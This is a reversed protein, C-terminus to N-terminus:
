GGPMPANRDQINAGAGQASSKLSDLGGAANTIDSPSTSGSKLSSGLGKIQSYVLAPADLLGHLWLQGGLASSTEQPGSASPAHPRIGVHVLPGLRRALNRFERPSMDTERRFAKSFQAQEPYGVARAVDKIRLEDRLLRRAETMRTMQLVERFSTEGVEAFVRQLQRRSTAIARAVADIQLDRACDRAIVAVAEEFLQRRRQATASRHKVAAVSSSGM